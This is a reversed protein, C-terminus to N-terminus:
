NTTERKSKTIRVLASKFVIAVMGAGFCTALPIDFKNKGLWFIYKSTRCPRHVTNGYSNTNTQGASKQCVPQVHLVEETHYAIFTVHPPPTFAQIVISHLTCFVDVKRSNFRKNIQIWSQLFPSM